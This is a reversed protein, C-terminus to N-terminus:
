TDCSADTTRSGTAAASDVSSGEDNGVFQDDQEAATNINPTDSEGGISAAAASATTSTPTPAATATATATPEAGRRRLEEIESPEAQLLNNVVQDHLSLQQHALEAEQQHM